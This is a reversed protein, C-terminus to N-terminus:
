DHDEETLGPCGDMEADEYKAKCWFCYHHKDRMYLVLRRLREDPSLANFEDLEPDEEDLDEAMVYTNWPKHVAGIDKGLAHKDDMDLEDDVYTPLRTSSLMSSQELDYRMRREREAEERSRVLGRYVVPIARLPRSSSAGTKKKRRKKERSDSGNESGDERDDDDREEIKQIGGEEGGVEDGYDEDMGEAVKQAAHVQRELRAEERERRVRERYGEEDVKAKKAMEGAAEAAERMKRKRESELGIGERGDKISIKIPETRAESDTSKAGLATGPVFGMKAMMALGKSKATVGIVPAAAAPAPSASASASSSSPAAKPSPAVLKDFLSTSLAAERRAEEEAALEAKSKVRGRIEGERQLRLRRQLSTEIPKGSKSKSSSATTFTPEDTFTMKMYDDESDSDAAAAAAAGNTSPDKTTSSM